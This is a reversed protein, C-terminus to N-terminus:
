TVAGPDLPAGGLEPPSTVVATVRPHGATDPATVELPRAAAEQASAAGSWLGTVVLVAAALRKVPRPGQPRPRPRRDRLPLRAPGRRRRRAPRHLPPASRDARVARPLARRRRD